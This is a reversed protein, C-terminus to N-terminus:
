GAVKGAVLTIWLGLREDVVVELAEVEIDIGNMDSALRHILSPEIGKSSAHKNVRLEIREVSHQHTQRMRTARRAM